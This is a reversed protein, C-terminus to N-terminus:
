LPEGAEAGRYLMCTDQDGKLSEHSQLSETLLVNGLGMAEHM